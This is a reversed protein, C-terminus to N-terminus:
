KKKRCKSLEKNLQQQKKEKIKKEIEKLRKQEQIRLQSEEHKKKSRAIAEENTLQEPISSVYKRPALEEQKHTLPVLDMIRALSYDLHFDILVKPNYYVRCAKFVLRDVEISIPTWGNSVKKLNRRTKIDSHLRNIHQLIFDFANIQRIDHHKQNLKSCLIGMYYDAFHALSTAKNFGGRRLLPIRLCQQLVTRRKLFLADRDHKDIITLIELASHFTKARELFIGVVFNLMPSVTVDWTKPLILRNSFYDEQLSKIWELIEGVTLFPVVCYALLPYLLPCYNQFLGAISAEQSIDRPEDKWRKYALENYSQFQSELTPESQQSRLQDVNDSYSANYVSLPIPLEEEVQEM